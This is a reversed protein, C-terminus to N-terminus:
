SGKVQAFSPFKKRSPFTSDSEGINGEIEWFLKETRAVRVWGTKSRHYRSFTTYFHDANADPRCDASLIDKGDPTPAFTWDSKLSRMFSIPSTKGRVKAWDISNPTAELVQTVPGNYSGMGTSFDQTVLFTRTGAGIDVAEMNAYPKELTLSQILQGDSAKLLLRAPKIPKNDSGPFNDPNTSPDHAQLIQIDTETLRSDRVIELSGNLGDSKQTLVLTQHVIFDPASPKPAYACSSIIWITAAFLGMLRLNSINM